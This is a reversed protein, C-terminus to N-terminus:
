VWRSNANWKATYGVTRWAQLAEKWAQRPSYHGSDFDILVTNINQVPPTWGALQISRENAQQMCYAINAKLSGEKDDGKENLQKQMELAKREYDRMGEYLDRRDDIELQAIGAAKCEKGVAVVSHKTSKPDGISLIGDVDVTYLVKSGTNVIEKFAGATTTHYHIVFGSSFPDQKHRNQKRHELFSRIEGILAAPQHNPFTKPADPVDSGGRSLVELRIKKAQEALSDLKVQLASYESEKVDNRNQIMQFEHILNKVLQKRRIFDELSALYQGVKLETALM